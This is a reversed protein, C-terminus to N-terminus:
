YETDGHIWMTSLESNMVATKGDDSKYKSPWMHFWEAMCSCKKGFAWTCKSTTIQYM